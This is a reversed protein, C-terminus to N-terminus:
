WCPPSRATRRCRLRRSAAAPGAGARALLAEESTRRQAIAVADNVTVFLLGDGGTDVM